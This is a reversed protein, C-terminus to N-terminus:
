KNVVYCQPKPMQHIEWNLIIGKSADPCDFYARETHILRIYHLPPSLGNETSVHNNDFSTVVVQHLNRIDITALGTGMDAYMFNGQIAVDVNGPISIFQLPIPNKPNSNDFIHVGKAVENIFLKDRYVYIKGVTKLPISEMTKISARLDDITGYVPKLGLVTEQIERETCAVILVSFVTIFASIKNM